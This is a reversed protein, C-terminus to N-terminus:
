SQLEERKAFVRAYRLVGDSYLARHVKVLKGKREIYVIRKPNKGWSTGAYYYELVYRWDELRNRRLKLGLEREAVSFCHSLYWAGAFISDKPNFPNKITIGIKELHRQSFRFTADITQMLGKASTIRSRARPNGGSEQVIVAEIISEPVNFLKSAERIWKIWPRIKASLPHIQAAHWRRKYIDPVNKLDHATLNRKEVISKPYPHKSFIGDWVKKIYNLGEDMDSRAREWNSGAPLKSPFISAALILTVVATFLILIRKM